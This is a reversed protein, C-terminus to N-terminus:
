GYGRRHCSHVQVWTWFFRWCFIVNPLSPHTDLIFNEDPTLCYLCTAVRSIRTMTGPSPGMLAPMYRTITKIISTQDAEQMLTDPRDVRQGGQHEAVKVGAGRINPFAYFINEPFGFLPISHDSFKQPELPDIFLVTKRVLHIPLDLDRLLQTSWAGATIVIKGALIEREGARICVVKGDSDWSHVKHNLCLEAGLERARNQM